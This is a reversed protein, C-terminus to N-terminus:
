TLGAIPEATAVRVVENPMGRVLRLEGPDVLTQMVTALLNEIRVADSRPEGGDRTSSGIVQGGRLGGGALLLPALNGWHDRGGRKNIKPTRGMEGACVLLIKDTLGRAALDEVLASVAHDLPPGTYRMGEAVGANNQDAHMDWVFNTTVTVLGCGAECLRRALLLLRGLSKANDIYHRRNNWQSSIAEPRVLPATDYRAITQPDERSLDFAKAAGGLVTQFAQERLRDVAAVGSAADFAFRVRDLEALMARRDNLREIPVNLRMDDELSGGGGPVFPAFSAGLGGTGELRGFSTTQPGTSPDVARPYLVASTPLGTAPDTAGAMRAFLAGISAGGSARSAVPKIDHNADGTTFSRVIALRDALRALNPLQGGFTIGPISTAVEGSASRIDLPAAMKPDFTEFQSPGGHLFLFIVSKGTLLRKTQGAALANLGALSLGGLSLSGIRLFARRRMRTEGVALMADGGLLM